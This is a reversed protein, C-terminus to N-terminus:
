RALPLGAPPFWRVSQRTLVCMSLSPFQPPLHIVPQEILAPRLDPARREDAISLGITDQARGLDLGEAIQPRAQLMGKPFPLRRIRVRHPKDIVPHQNPSVIGALHHRAPVLPCGLLDAAIGDMPQLIEDPATGLPHGLHPPILLVRIEALRQVPDLGPM